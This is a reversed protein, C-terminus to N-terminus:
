APWAPRSSRLRPSSRTLPTRLEHSVDAVFPQNQRQSAELSAIDRQALGGDPQVRHAIAAFEDAGGAPVRPRCTAPRSGPRRASGSGVPRLIGRAVIGATGLALLDRHHAASALGLRLQEEAREIRGGPVRLLVGPGNPARGGLVLAPQGARAFGPSALHGAGVLDRV